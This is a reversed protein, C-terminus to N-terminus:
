ARCPEGSFNWSSVYRAHHPEPGPVRGTHGRVDATWELRHQQYAMFARAVLGGLSHAVIVFTQNPFAGSSVASDIVDRLQLGLFSVPYKDSVYYVEYLKYSVGLGANSFYNEFSSWFTGDGDCVTKGNPVGHIGHILVLPMRSGAPTQDVAVLRVAAAPDCTAQAYSAICAFIAIASSILVPLTKSLFTRM